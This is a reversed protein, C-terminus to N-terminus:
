VHKFELNYEKALKTLKFKWIEPSYQDHIKQLDMILYKHNKPIGQNDTLEAWTFGEFATKYEDEGILSGAACKLNMNRYRCSGGENVCRKNQTLLHAVVQDFVQQETAEALTKLTIMKKEM